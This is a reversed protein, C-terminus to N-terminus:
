WCLGQYAFPYSSGNRSRQIRALDIVVHDPRIRAMAQRADEDRNGVVIIESHALVEEMQDTLISAIHPIEREIFQKNAGTLRALSINRDYVRVPYGRGILTEVLTVMPSERLDDTGPKFSLGIVGVPKRGYNYILDLSRQIHIRNAQLISGLLPVDIDLQKAKYNLARLDKPLCSGGFAFGPKLYAKSINLKEDLCFIDMVEHSDIELAKCFAGIENAFAIKLAHYANCVYKITEAVKYDTRICPGSLPRYIERIGDLAPGEPGGIVTVAPHFFDHVSCGERMFEPNFFVNFGTGATKGSVRELTPIVIEEMTGPLLTSRVVITHGDKGRLISGIESCVKRVYALDQNGTGNSPTGVCVFSVESGHIAEEPNTTARFHKQAFAEQMIRPLDKEIIPCSGRNMLDIKTANTDVGIVEHGQSALCLGSVTGVYGMGFISIKM